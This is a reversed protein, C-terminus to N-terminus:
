MVNRSSSPDSSLFTTSYCATGYSPDGGRLGRQQEKAISVERRRVKELKPGVVLYLVKIVLVVAVCPVDQEIVLVVLVNSFSRKHVHEHEKLRRSSPLLGPHHRQPPLLHDSPTPTLPPALRLLLSATLPPPRLRRQPLRASSSPAPRPLHLAAAFSATPLRLNCM